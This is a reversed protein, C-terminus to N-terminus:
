HRRRRILLTAGLISLFTTSEFAPLFAASKKNETAVDSQAPAGGFVTINVAGTTTLTGDSVTVTIKYTGNYAPATWMVSSDTGTITGGTASYSYALIDGDSDSAVVTITALGGARVTTTNTSINAITPNRNRPVDGWQVLLRGLGRCRGYFTLTNNDTGNSYSLREFPSEAESINFSSPTVVSITSNELPATVVIFDFFKKDLTGNITINLLPDTLIDIVWWGGPVYIYFGKQGLRVSRGVDLTTTFYSPSSSFNVFYTLSAEASTGNDPFWLFVPPYSQLLTKNMLFVGDLRYETRNSENTITVNVFEATILNPTEAIHQGTIDCTVREEVSVFNSTSGWSANVFYVPIEPRFCYIPFNDWWMTPVDELNYLLEFRTGNEYKTGNYVTMNVNSNVAIRFDDFYAVYMTWMDMFSKSHMYRTFNLGSANQLSIDYSQLFYTANKTDNFTDYAMYFGSSNASLSANRPRDIHAGTLVGGEISVNSIFGDDLVSSLTFNSSINVVADAGNVTINMYVVNGSIVCGSAFDIDGKAITCTFVCLFFLVFAVVVGSYKKMQKLNM